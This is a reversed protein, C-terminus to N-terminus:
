KITQFLGELWPKALFIAAAFLLAILAGGGKLLLMSIEHKTPLHQLRERVASLDERIKGVDTELRTVRTEMDGDHPGDGGGDVASRVAASHQSRRFNGPVVDGM